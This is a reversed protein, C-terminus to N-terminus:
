TLDPPWFRLKNTDGLFKYIHFHSLLLGDNTALQDFQLLDQLSIYIRPRSLHTM